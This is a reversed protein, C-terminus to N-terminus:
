CLDALLPRLARLTADAVHRHLQAVLALARDARDRLLHLVIRQRTERDGERKATDAGRQDAASLRPGAALGSRERSQQHRRRSARNRTASRHIAGTSRWLSRFPDPGRKRLALNSWRGRKPARASQGPRSWRNRSHGAGGRLAERGASALVRDRKPQRVHLVRTSARHDLRRRLFALQFSPSFPSPARPGPM